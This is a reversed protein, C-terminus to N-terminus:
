RNKCLMAIGMGGGIGMAAIGTETQQIKMEACLRTTIVAGSAGYPHGLAIAGGGSNVNERPVQLAHLCAITQSAFAENFEMQDIDNIELNNRKLCQQVASIPGIGLYNPDVGTTVIDQVEVLPSLGWAKAKEESMVLVVSAGDNVPCSNGATVTGHEVFVPPLRRLLKRNTQERPCEDMEAVGSLPVIEGEYRGEKQARVAKQHSEVAYVDQEERTVGYKQAVNEAAVGMDPDGIKEPSFAAREYFRPLQQWVNKPKKMKWPARSVSEVGGALYVGGAGAQILRVAQGVAEMGSGCQRDVTVGPVSVPFDAQLASLRALNGGPGVVNGLIVDEIVEAPVGTEELISRFVVSALDEPPINRLIGGARGIPTRKACVIVAKHNM